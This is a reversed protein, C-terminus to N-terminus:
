LRKSLSYGKLEYGLRKYLNVTRDEQIGTTVGVGLVEAGANRCANEFEKILRVALIGKRHEPSVYLIQEAADPTSKYWHRYVAGFMIGKGSEIVGILSGSSFMAELSLTVYEEEEDDIFRYEPSESRLAKLMLIMEPIDYRDLVRIM